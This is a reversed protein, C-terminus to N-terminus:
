DVDSEVSGWEKRSGGGPALFPPTEHRVGAASWHHPLVEGHPPIQRLVHQQHKAEAVEVFHEKLVGLDRGGDEVDGQGLPVADRHATHGMVRCLDVDVLENLRALPDGDGLLRRSRRRSLNNLALNGLDDACARNVIEIQEVCAAGVEEGGDKTESLLDAEGVDVVGGAEELDGIKCIGIRQPILQFAELGGFEEDAVLLGIELFRKPTGHGCQDALAVQKKLILRFVAQRLM